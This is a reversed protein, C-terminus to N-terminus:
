KLNKVFYSVITDWDADFIEQTSTHGVGKNVRSKFEKGLEKFWNELAALTQMASDESGSIFYTKPLRAADQKGFGAPMYGASIALAKIRNDRSAAILALTGGASYGVMGISETDTNPITQAFDVAKRVAFAKDGRCDFYHINIAIIGKKKLSMAFNKYREARDGTIGAAGHILIVAPCGKLGPNYIDIQVKEGDYELYQTSDSILEMAKRRERAIEMAKKKGDSEIEAAMEESKSDTDSLFGDLIIVGGTEYERAKGKYEVTIERKTIKTIRAEGIMDNCKYIEGNIMVFPDKESYM